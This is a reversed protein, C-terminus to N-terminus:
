SDPADTVEKRYKDLVAQGEIVDMSGDDTHERVQKIARMAGQALWGFRAMYRDLKDIDGSDACRQIASWYLNTATVLRTMIGREIGLSGILSLETEVREQEAMALGVFPAGDQIAKIAAAGGHKEAYKNDPGFKHGTGKNNAM